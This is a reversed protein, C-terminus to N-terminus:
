WEHLKHLINAQSVVYDVMKTWFIGSLWITTQVSVIYKHPGIRIRDCSCIPIENDEYIFVSSHSSYIEQKLFGLHKLNEFLEFTTDFLLAIVIDLCEFTVSAFFVCWTFEVIITLIFSHLISEGNSVRWFLFPMDFLFLLVTTSVVLAISISFPRGFVNHVSATFMM